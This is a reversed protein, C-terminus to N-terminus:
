LPTIERENLFIVSRYLGKRIELLNLVHGQLDLFDFKIHCFVATTKCVAVEGRVKGRKRSKGIHSGFM